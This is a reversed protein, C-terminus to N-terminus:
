RQVDVIETAGRSADYIRSRPLPGAVSDATWPYPNSWWDEGPRVPRVDWRYKTTVPKWPEEVTKELVGVLIGDEFTGRYVETTPYNTMQIDPNSEIRYKFYVKNGCIHGDEIAIPGRCGRYDDTVTGTLKNGDRKLHLTESGVGDQWQWAGEITQVQPFEHGQTAYDLPHVFEGLLVLSPLFAQTDIVLSGEIDLLM